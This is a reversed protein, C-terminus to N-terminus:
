TRPSPWVPPPTRDPVHAQVSGRRASLPCGAGRRAHSRDGLLDLARSRERERGKTSFFPEFIRARLRAPIGSGHGEVEVFALNVLVQGLLTRPQCCVSPFTPRTSAGPAHRRRGADTKAHRPDPRSRGRALAYRACIAAPSRAGQRMAILVERMRGNGARAALVRERLRLPGAPDDGPEGARVIGLHPAHVAEHALGGPSRGSTHHPGFRVHSRTAPATSGAACRPGAPASRRGARDPQLHGARRRPYTQVRQRRKMANTSRDRAEQRSGANESDGSRFRSLPGGHFNTRSRWSACVAPTLGVVRRAPCKCGSRARDGSRVQLVVSRRQSCAGAVLDCTLIPRMLRPVDGPPRACSSDV